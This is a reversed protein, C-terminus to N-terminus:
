QHPLFGRYARDHILYPDTWPELVTGLSHWKPSMISGKLPPVCHSSILNDYTHGQFLYQSRAWKTRERNKAM